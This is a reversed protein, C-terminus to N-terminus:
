LRTLREAVDHFHIDMALVHEYAERARDAQGLAEYARGMHYYVGLLELEDGRKLGVAYSLVKAAIAHEEKQLFCYGLEEYIKLKNHGGRLAIQFEAIAEDLLDMEKFALALDYHAAAEEVPLHESIKARFRGLLEAFDRDEDGSPQAESVRFRTTEEQEDRVLDRLNVFERRPARHGSEGASEAPVSGSGATADIGDADIGDADIGDADIGDADIGDADIGDADIGDADIEDADIEDAEIEDADFGTVDIETADVEMTDFDAAVVDATGSVGSAPEGASLSWPEWDETVPEAEAAEGDAFSWPPTWEEADDSEVGEDVDGSVAAAPDEDDRIFEDVALEDHGPGEVTGPAEREFAAADLASRNDSQADGPIGEDAPEAGTARERLQEDPGPDGDSWLESAPESWEPQGVDLDWPAPEHPVQESVAEDPGTEDADAPASELSGTDLFSFSDLSIPDADPIETDAGPREMTDHWDEVEGSPGLVGWPGDADDPLLTFGFPNDADTEPHDPIPPETAGHGAGDAVDRGREEEVADDAPGADAWESGEDDEAAAWDLSGRDVDTTFTELPVPDTEFTPLYAFDVAEGDDEDADVDGTDDSPLPQLGSPTTPRSEDVSRTPVWEEWDEGAEEDVLPLADSTANDDLLPLEVAEDEPAVTLDGDISVADSTSPEPPEFYVEDREIGLEELSTLDATAERFDLMTSELGDVQDAGAESPAAAEDSPEQDTGFVQFDPDQEVSVDDAPEAEFRDIVGEVVFGPDSDSASTEGSTDDYIEYDDLRPLDASTSPASASSRAVAGPDVSAEPDIEQIVSRVGEARATDGHQMYLAYARGLETMAAEDKGQEHLRRGYLERADGDDVINAFDALAALAADPQGVRLQQDAYQLFYRRAETLFGQLASFQGLKRILEPHDPRHRLVKNCLAIANNYLGVEAYRDAAQEYYRVAEPARGLRVCLDGIRNYLPLEVEGEGEDGIRLVQLYANIAKEWEEKQEYRRAEDKLKSISKM